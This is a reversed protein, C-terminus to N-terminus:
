FAYSYKVSFSRGPNYTQYIEDSSGYSRYVMTRSDDLINQVSLNIRSRYEKGFGINANFDFSNFPLTYVDPIRGSSIISLQEGQVNYALSISLQKELIEYRLNTNISYPSQGALARYYGLEEGERLNNQRLAYETQGANGTNVDRMDVKSKVLTLNGGIFLRNFFKSSNGAIFGLKKRIEFEAGLVGAMGSNRPKLNDPATEFAVMEIHGDFSKYFGAVSLLEGPEFYWEYRLDYNWIQTQALDINGVFTRKTIPDYIQSISKEKFSPRAITKAASARLNIEDSLKYVLNVSPLISLEDLTKENEYIVTGSNNQGSYFMDAKEVRLGYIAKLRDTISQEAMAYGAFVFQQAEYNNAPEFNGISYTGSNNDNTWINEPELFWDPDGSVNSRDKRNHNYSLTEFQRWKLLGNLGALLKFNPSLTYTLDAKFNENVEHLDRWFRNIGAGDGTNLTTDGNTISYATSRFDPDYVRSLSLANGWSWELKDSKHEGTVIFSSLSRQSYTLIDEVLVAGTQNFNRTVRDSATSEASQSHLLLANIASNGKEYGGSALGSWQVTNKGVIGRSSEDKFLENVSRDNDKLFTNNEFDSYFNTSNTYNLVMNYGYIRGDKKELKNGTRFSLSGNPMATKSKVSLTPNFSRTITELNPDNLVEQPIETTKDIPLKRTGDDIGLFDMGGGEYGIYNENFTQNETYGLGISIRSERSEPFNRTVVDVLGGTFDGYLNPTFSKYVAVNELISSPFIDIQVANVDPDLGPIAMGNLTTKTYRDGLGRVYVYKGGQVTVGTVRKIAESLDSDGAKQISQAALGSVINTANKMEILTGNETNRRVKAVVEVAELEDAAPMMETDIRTNEGPKIVVNEFTQSKFSIFSVKITYTGPDLSISYNGDMDSVAGIGPNDALVVTAGIMPGGMEGDNITGELSGKQQAWLFFPSSLAILVLFLTKTSIM